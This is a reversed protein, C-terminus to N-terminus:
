NGLGAINNIIPLYSKYDTVSLTIPINIRSCPSDGAGATIQLQITHTGTMAESPVITVQPASPTTGDTMSMSIWNSAPTIIATWTIPQVTSTIGFSMTIPTSDHHVTASWSKPHVQLHVVSYDSLCHITGHSEMILITGDAVILPSTRIYPTVYEWMLSGDTSIGYCSDSDACVFVNGLADVVPPTVIGPNFMIETNPIPFKWKLSGDPKVAYVHAFDSYNYCGHTGFYITGDTGIASAAPIYGCTEDTQFVWKETGDPSLAYLKGGVAGIYVTGDNGIAPSSDDAQINRNWKLSGDPAFAYLGDVSSGTYITGDPGIAPSSHAYETFPYSWRLNGDPTVSFLGDHTFYVTGDPAIAPSSGFVFNGSLNGSVWDVQGNPNVAAFYDGAGWYIKGNIHMAPTSRSGGGPTFWKAIGDVPNIAGLYSSFSIYVTGDNGISMETGSEDYYELSLPHVAWVEEPLSQIGRFPSRGTHTTDHQHMPWPTDALGNQETGQSRAILVPNLLVAILLCRLIIARSHRVLRYGDQLILDIARQYTRM